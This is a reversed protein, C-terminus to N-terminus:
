DWDMGRIVDRKTLPEARRIGLFSMVDLSREFATLHKLDEPILCEDCDEGGCSSMVDLVWEGSSEDIHYLSGRTLDIDQGLRFTNELKARYTDLNPEDDDM